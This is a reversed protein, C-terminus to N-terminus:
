VFGLWSADHLVFHARLFPFRRSPLWETGIELNRLNQDTEYKESQHLDSNEAHDTDIGHREFNDFGDHGFRQGTHSHGSFTM